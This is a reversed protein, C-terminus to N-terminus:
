HVFTPAQALRCIDLTLANLKKAIRSFLMDRFDELELNQFAQRYSQDILPADSQLVHPHCLAARQPLWTEPNSTV